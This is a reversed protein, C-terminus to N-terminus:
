RASTSARGGLFATSLARAVSTTASRTALRTFLKLRFLDVAFRIYCDVYM